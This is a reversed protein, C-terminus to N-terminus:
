LVFHGLAWGAAAAAMVTSKPHLALMAMGWHYFRNLADM